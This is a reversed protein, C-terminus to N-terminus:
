MFEILNNDIGYVIRALMQVKSLDNEENNIGEDRGIVIPVEGLPSPATKLM